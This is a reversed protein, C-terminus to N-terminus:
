RAPARGFLPNGGLSTYAAAAMLTALFGLVAFSRGAYWASWDLTLPAQLLVYVTFWVIATAILGCRALVFLMIGACIGGKGLPSVIRCRSALLTGPTFRETADTRAKAPKVATEDSSAPPDISASM